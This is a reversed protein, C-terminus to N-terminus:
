DDTLVAKQVIINLSDDLYKAKWSIEFVVVLGKVFKASFEDELLVPKCSLPPDDVDIGSDKSKRICETSKRSLASRRNAYGISDDGDMATTSSILIIEINSSKNSRIYDGVDLFPRFLEVSLREFFSCFPKARVVILIIDFSGDLLL